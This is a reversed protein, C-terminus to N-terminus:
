EQDQLLHQAFMHINKRDAWLIYRIYDRALMEVSVIGVPRASSYWEEEKVVSPPEPAAKPAARSRPTDPRAKPPPPTTSDRKPADYAGPPVDWRAWKAWPDSHEETPMRGSSTRSKGGQPSSPPAAKSGKGCQWGPIDQESSSARGGQGRRVKERLEENWDVGDGGYTKSKKFSNFVGM